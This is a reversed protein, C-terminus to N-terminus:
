YRKIFRILDAQVATWSTQFVNQAAAAFDLGNRVAQNFFEIVEGRGFRQELRYMALFAVGYQGQVTMNSANNAPGFGPLKGNWGSDVYRRTVSTADWTLGHEATEAYGEILWWRNEWYHTGYVSAAHTFEHRMMRPLFSSSVVKSNVVVAASRNSTPTTYGAAWKAQRGGFWKKWENPGALYSVYAEPKQGVAYADARTAAQQAAALAAPLRGRLSAPAAVVVRGAVSAYLDTTEWPQTRDFWGNGNASPSLSM